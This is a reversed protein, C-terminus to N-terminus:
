AHSCKTSLRVALDDHCDARFRCFLHVTPTEDGVKAGTLAQERSM